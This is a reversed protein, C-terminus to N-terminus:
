PSLQSDTSRRAAVSGAKCRRTSTATHPRCSHAPRTSAKPPKRVERTTGPRAIARVGIRLQANPFRSVGPEISRMPGSHRKIVRRAGLGYEEVGGFYWQHHDPHRAPDARGPEARPAGESAGGARPQAPRSLSFAPSRLTRAAPQGAVAP